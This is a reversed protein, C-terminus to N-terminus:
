DLRRANLLMFQIEELKMANKEETYLWQLLIRLYDLFLSISPTVLCYYKSRRRFNEANTKMPQRSKRHRLNTMYM